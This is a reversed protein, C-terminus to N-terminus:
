VPVGTRPRFTSTPAARTLSERREHHLWVLWLGVILVALAQHAAGLPVPVLLVLTAIGLGYQLTVLAAFAQAFRVSRSGSISGRWIAAAAGLAGFVLLTGLLRHIWQVTIPNEFANRIAPEMALAGPPVWSGGMKPFTNFLWGADLGAVFAGWLVQLLLLAGLLTVWPMAGTTSGAAGPRSDGRRVSLERALWICYGFITLAVFLHAALRYHSVHPRDILGSMVMFWGLLGQLMGLGFLVMVRRRLPPSLYGRLWFVAFPVLFVLGILRALLRHLFEWTYIFQFETLTMDPRLLRYEPFQRYRDFAEIWDARSLPPLIGVIPDWDVISLGSETLRTLGGVVLILFTMAAGTYLWLRLYLRRSEPLSTRWDTSESRAPAVPRHPM